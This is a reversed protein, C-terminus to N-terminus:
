RDGRPQYEGCWQDEYTAPWHHMDPDGEVGCPPSHVGIRRGGDRVDLAALILLQPLDYRPPYRRCDGSGDAVDADRRWFRCMSCSETDM